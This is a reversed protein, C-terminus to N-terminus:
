RCFLVIAPVASLLAFGGRQWIDKGRLGGGAVIRSGHRAILKRGDLVDDM